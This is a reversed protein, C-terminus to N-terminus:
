IEEPSFWYLRANNEFDDFRAELHKERQDILLLRGIGFNYPSLLEQGLVLPVGEILIKGSDAESIDITWISARDNYKFYLTYKVQGFLINLTQANNNLIPINIIM